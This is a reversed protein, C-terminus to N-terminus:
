YTPVMLLHNHQSPLARIIQISVKIFSIEAFQNDDEVLHCCLLFTGDTFWFYVRVLVMDELVKTKFKEAEM